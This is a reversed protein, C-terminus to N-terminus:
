LLACSVTQGRSAICIQRHADLSCSTGLGFSGKAYRLFTQTSWFLDNDFFADVTRGCLTMINSGIDDIDTSLFRELPILLHDQGELAICANQALHARHETSNMFSELSFRLMSEYLIREFITGIEEFHEYRPFDVLNRDDKFAFTEMKSSSLGLCYAYRVSLGFCGRTRLIDMMGAIACSDVTAPMPTETVVELWQQIAYSFEQASQFRDERKPSMAKECADALEDPIPPGANAGENLAGFFSVKGPNFRERIEQRRLPEPPKSVVQKLVDM